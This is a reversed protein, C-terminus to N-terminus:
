KKKLVSITKTHNLTNELIAENQLVFKILLLLLFCVVVVFLLAAAVSWCFDGVSIVLFFGYYCLM